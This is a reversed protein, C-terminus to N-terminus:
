LTGRVNRCSFVTAYHRGNLAYRPVPLHQQLAVTTVLGHGQVRVTRSHKGAGLKRGALTRVM